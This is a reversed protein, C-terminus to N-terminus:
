FSLERIEIRVWDGEALVGEGFHPMEDEVEPAVVLDGLGLEELESADLEFRFGLPEVHACWGLNENVPATVHFHGPEDSAAEIAVSPSAAPEGDLLTVAVTLYHTEAYGWDKWLAVGEAAGCATKFYVRAEAKDAPFTLELDEPRRM